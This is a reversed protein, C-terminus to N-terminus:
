RQKDHTQEETKPSAIYSSSIRSSPRLLHHHQAKHSSQSVAYRTIASTTDLRRVNLAFMHEGAWSKVKQRVQWKATFLDVIFRCYTQTIHSFFVM